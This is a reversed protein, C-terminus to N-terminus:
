FKNIHIIKELKRKPVHLIQNEDRWYKVTDKFDEVVPYEAKYGLAILSDIEYNNPINLIERIKEKNINCIVCTGIKKSEAAIVINETAFSVDRLYYKNKIDSILLLIYAIPRENEDPKWTPKIYAAWGITDFIKACINKDNVIFFEVPQLNAASPALRGANVFEKLTEIEIPKQKFRRISRRSKMIELIKLYYDIDKENM